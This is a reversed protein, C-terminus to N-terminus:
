NFQKVFKQYYDIIIELEKSMIKNNKLFKIIDKIDIISIIKDKKQKIKSNYEKRNFATIIASIKTEKPIIKKIKQITTGATIVDDLIIIKKKSIDDGILIGKEGYKKKEKRNFCYPINLNYKKFLTLIVSTLIPIGKYSLGFLTDFKLKSNIITQAYFNSLKYIDKGKYFVSSNFFYPSVRGSKLNFQGFKLAKKKIAFKIFNKKINNM